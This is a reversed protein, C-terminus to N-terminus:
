HGWRPLRVGLINAMLQIISCLQGQGAFTLTPSM